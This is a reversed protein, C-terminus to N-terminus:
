AKEIKKHPGGPFRSSLDNYIAEAGPSNVKAAAKVSGYFLLGAQYAESGSLMISDSLALCIPEILMSLERLITLAKVDVQMAKFDLYPPALEGHLAAYESAKQVFGFTKDGMKPLEHRDQPNLNKLHPMLKENIVKIAARVSDVDPEPIEVAISNPQPM